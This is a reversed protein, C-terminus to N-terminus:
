IACFGIFIFMCDCEFICVSFILQYIDFHGFTSDIDGVSATATGM